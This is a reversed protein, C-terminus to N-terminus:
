ATEPVEAAREKLVGSYYELATKTKTQQEGSLDVGHSTLFLKTETAVQLAENPLCKTSLELIRSGDPYMWMEAVLRRNFDKPKFKLKLLTIPGLVSLDDMPLGDPAHRKYFSRQEKSFLKSIRGEGGVTARIDGGPIGKFSASCVFGGPMADVEVGFSGSTRIEAPLESPVVPRLKVVTDGERGQIRRARAIVGVDNLTLEPTDFFFVQRLQADLPDMDLSRIASVHDGEPVTLKLEVSDAGSILELVERLQDDTLRSGAVMSM